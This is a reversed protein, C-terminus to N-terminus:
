ICTTLQQANHAALGPWNSPLAYDCLEQVQWHVVVKQIFSPLSVAFAHQDGIRVCVAWCGKPATGNAAWATLVRAIGARRSAGSFPLLLLVSWGAGAERGLNHEQAGLSQGGVLDGAGETGHAAAGAVREGGVGAVAGGLEGRGQRGVDGGPGRSGQVAGDRGQM